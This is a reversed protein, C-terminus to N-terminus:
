PVLEHQRSNHLNNLRVGEEAAELPSYALPQIEDALAIGFSKSSLLPAILLCLRRGAVGKSEGADARLLQLNSLSSNDAAFASTFM